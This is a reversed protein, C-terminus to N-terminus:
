MGPDCGPTVRQPAAWLLTQLPLLLLIPQLGVWRPQPLLQLLIEAAQSHSTSGGTIAPIMLNAYIRNVTEWILCKM